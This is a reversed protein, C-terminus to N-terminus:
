VRWPTASVPTVLQTLLEYKFLVSFSNFSILMIQVINSAGHAYVCMCVRVHVRVYAYMCMYMCVCM